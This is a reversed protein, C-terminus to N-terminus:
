GIRRLMSWAVVLTAALGAAFIMLAGRAGLQTWVIGYLISALLRGIATGTNLVSLGTARLDAPLIRGALAALVGDTAAYYAGLLLLMLFAVSQHVTPLLLIGYAAVLMVHGFIFVAKASIRDALRGAPIALTMFSVATLVYLLPFFANPMVVRQRLALYLLGDSVTVLGLASGAVTLNRFRPEALLVAISRWSVHLKAAGDSENGTRGSSGDVLLAIVAVGVLAVCLSVIFVADYAHPAMALVAVAVLPGLMAGATDMARHVGFATALQGPPASAAIMADRPATRIGKGIRDVLIVGSLATWSSGAALFGLKCIASLGYGFTAVQKSRRWRDSAIGGLVGTLVAAGRYIGDILGIEFSSFGLTLLLYIPLTATVMESSIDTLLSTAGLLLVTSGVATWSARSRLFRRTSTLESWNQVQYM